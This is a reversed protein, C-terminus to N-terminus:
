AAVQVQRASVLVVSTAQRAGQVVRAVWDPLAVLRVPGQAVRPVIRAPGQVVQPVIRAVIGASGLVVSPTPAQRAGQVVPRPEVRAERQLVVHAMMPVMAKATRRVMMLMKTPQAM